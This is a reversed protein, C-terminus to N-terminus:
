DTANLLEQASEYDIKIDDTINLSKFINYISIDIDKGTLYTFIDSIKDNIDDFNVHMGNMNYLSEEAEKANTHRGSRHIVLTSREPYPNNIAFLGTNSDSINKIKEKYEKNAKCENMADHLCPYGSATMFASFWATRSRPLGTIFFLKSM